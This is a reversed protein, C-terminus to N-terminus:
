LNRHATIDIVASQYGTLEGSDNRLVTAMGHAMFNTGDKRRATYSGEWKGNENLAEIIAIARDLDNLFHPIPKGVVESKYLYGWTRLFADNVETIIGCKDAISNAAISVDFVLNKLRLDEEVIKRETIDSVVHVAGTIKNEGDFVPDVTIELWHEESKLVSTNRMKTQKMGAVPCTQLQEQTGHVIEWCFKGLIEGAQTKNFLKYCAKNCRRIRFDPSLLFVADKIADFTQQWELAANLLANDYYKKITIDRCIRMVAEEGNWNIARATVEAPISTGDKKQHTTEFSILKHKRLKAMLEPEYMRQEYVDIESPPMLLLEDESYGLMECAKSNVALFKNENHIFIADGANEFLMRYISNDQNITDSM